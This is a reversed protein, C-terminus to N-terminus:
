SRGSATGLRQKFEDISDISTPDVGRLLALYLSVYDGYAALWALRAVRGAAPPALHIVEAGQREVYEGTLSLRRAVAPALESDELLLVAAPTADERAREWGVIENHNLEPVVASHGPVKANENFQQRWRAAIPETPGAAAYIYLPRGALRRALQKAPNRAEPVASGLIGNLERVAGAAERWAAGPDDVWGLAALLHTLTVWAAYMAARPPSGPPLPACSVGDRRCSEALTGGTSMAVRDLGLSGAHDYLALTEETNGSYSSLLALAGRGAWAPWRYDRVALLPAPLRDSYLSACLDAAIASGGMAGAAILRPASPLRWQFGDLRALQAEIQDPITEIRATMGSPDRREYPPELAIM